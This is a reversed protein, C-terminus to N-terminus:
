LALFVVVERGLVFDELYSAGFLVLFAEESVLHEVTADALLPKFAGWSMGEVELAVEDRTKGTM